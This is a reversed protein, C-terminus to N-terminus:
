SVGNKLPLLIKHGGFPDVDWMQDGISMFLHKGERRLDARALVKAQTLDVFDHKRYYALVGQVPIGLRRLQNSTFSKAVNSRNTIIVPEFVRSNATVYKFVKVIPTITRGNVSSVLTDDIDFIVTLRQTTTTAAAALKSLAARAAEEYTLFRM